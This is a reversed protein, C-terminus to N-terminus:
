KLVNSFPTMSSFNACLSFREGPQISRFPWQVRSVYYWPNLPASSAAGGRAWECAFQRLDAGRPLTFVVTARCCYSHSRMIQSYSISVAYNIYCRKAKGPTQPPDLTSRGVSTPLPAIKTVNVNNVEKTKINYTNTLCIM